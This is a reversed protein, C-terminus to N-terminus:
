IRGRMEILTYSPRDTPGDTPGSRRKLFAFIWSDSHLPDDWSIGRGSGVDGGGGSDIGGGNGDGGGDAWCGGGESSSM